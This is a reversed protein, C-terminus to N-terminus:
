FICCGDVLVTDSRLCEDVLFLGLIEELIVNSKHNMMSELDVEGYLAM